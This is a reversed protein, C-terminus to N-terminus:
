FGSIVWVRPIRKYVKRVVVCFAIQRWQHEHLKFHALTCQNLDPALQPHAINLVVLVVLSSARVKLQKDILLQNSSTITTMTTSDVHNDSEYKNHFKTM